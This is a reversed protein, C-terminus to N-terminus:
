KNKHKEQMKKNQMKQRLLTEHKTDWSKNKMKAHIIRYDKKTEKREM